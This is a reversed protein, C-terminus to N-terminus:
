VNLFEGLFTSGKRSFNLHTSERQLSVQLRGHWARQFYCYWTSSVRPVFIRNVDEAQPAARGSSSLGGTDASPSPTPSPQCVKCSHDMRPSPATGVAPVPLGLGLRATHRQTHGATLPQRSVTGARVARRGWCMGSSRSQAEQSTHLLTALLLLPSLTPPTYTHAAAPVQKFGVATLGHGDCRLIGSGPVGTRSVNTVSCCYQPPPLTHTIWSLLTIWSHPHTIWSHM